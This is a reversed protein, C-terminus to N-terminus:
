IAWQKNNNNKIKENIKKNKKDFIGKETKSKEVVYVEMKKKNKKFM